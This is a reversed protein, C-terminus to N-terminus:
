RRLATERKVARETVRAAANETCRIRSMHLSAKIGFYRVSVGETSLHSVSAGQTVAEIRAINSAALSDLVYCGSDLM